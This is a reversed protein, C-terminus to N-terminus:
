EHILFIPPMWWRCRRPISRLSRSCFSIIHRLTTSDMMCPPEKGKRRGCTKQSRPDRTAPSYCLRCQVKNIAKCQFHNLSKWPSHMFDIDHFRNSSSANEATTFMFIFWALQQQDEIINIDIYYRLIIIKRNKRYNM